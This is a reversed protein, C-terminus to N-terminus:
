STTTTPSTPWWRPSSTTAANTRRSSGNRLPLRANRFERWIDLRWFINLAGLYEPVPDPFNKGPSYQIQNELAGAPTFFSSKNVGVRTGYTVFPLYAGRRALIENRAIEVEENLTLLERNNGLGQNVLETLMPDNFFEIVGYQASNMQTVNIQASVQKIVPAPSGKGPPQATPRLRAGNAGPPLLEM